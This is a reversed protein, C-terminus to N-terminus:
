TNNKPIYVTIGPYDKHEGNSSILWVVNRTHPLALSLCGDTFVVLTSYEPHEIYHVFVERADTGGRGSIIIDDRPGKFVFKNQIKTDFEVVDIIVGTKYLHLLESFFETLEKDSISGSTDIAVLVKSKFKVVNGPQDPFRFSPRYRTSKIFSQITNGLVRRLYGRWNFVPKRKAFLNEVYTKFCGPINGHTKQVQEAANRALYDVQDEMLQRQASDDSDFGGWVHNDPSAWGDPIREYYWKTGKEPPFGCVTPTYLFPPLNKIYSNVEIDAAINFKDHDPFDRGMWLHKFLIHMVEHQLIAVRQLDTLGEWYEPNICLDVNIGNSIVCATKSAYKDFRKELSMLFLGYFPEDIILKKVAQAITYGM